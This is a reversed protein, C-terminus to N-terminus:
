ASIEWPAAPLTVMIPNADTFYTRAVDVSKTPIPHKPKPPPVHKTPVYGKWDPATDGLYYEWRGKYIEFRSILGKSLLKKTYNALTQGEIGTAARIQATPKPGTKLTELIQEEPTMTPTSM